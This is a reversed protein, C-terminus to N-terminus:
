GSASACSSIRENMERTSSASDAASGSSSSAELTRDYICWVISGHPAIARARGHMAREYTDSSVLIIDPRLSPLDMPRCIPLADLLRCGSSHDDCVGVITARGRIACRLDNLRRQTHKGAGFLVIRPMAGHSKLRRRLSRLDADLLVRTQSAFRQLGPMSRGLYHWSMSRMDRSLLWRIISRTRLAGVVVRDILGAMEIRTARRLERNFMRVQRLYARLSAYRGINHSIGGRRFGLLTEPTYALGHSRVFRALFIMDLGLLPPGADSLAAMDRLSELSAQLKVTRFLGYFPTGPLERLYVGVRQAPTLNSTTRLSATELRVERPSGDPDINRVSCCALGLDAHADLMSALSELFPPERLDDCAAWCFYETSAQEAAHILNRLVGVDHSRRALCVRADRNAFSQVIAATGDTSANDHVVLAFDSMTQALFSDIASAIFREGNRVVMGVTIRPANM